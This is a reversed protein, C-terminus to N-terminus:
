RIAEPHGVDGLMRRPFALDVAGHHEVDEAAPDDSPGDVGALLGGKDSISEPHGERVSLRVVLGNNV